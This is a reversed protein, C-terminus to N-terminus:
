IILPNQSIKRTNTMMKPEDLEEAAEWAKEASSQSTFIVFCLEK